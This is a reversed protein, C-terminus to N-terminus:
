REGGRSKIAAAQPPKFGAELVIQYAQQACSDCIFGNMGTILFNVDKESRGCFSCVKKPM